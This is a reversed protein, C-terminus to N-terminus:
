CAGHLLSAPSVVVGDGLVVANGRCGRCQEINPWNAPISVALAANEAVFMALEGPIM